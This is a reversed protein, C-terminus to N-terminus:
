TINPQPNGDVPFSFDKVGGEAVTYNTGTGLAKVRDKPFCFFRFFLLHFASIPM